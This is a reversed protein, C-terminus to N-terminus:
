QVQTNVNLEVEEEPLAKDRKLRKWSHYIFVNAVALMPPLVLSTMLAVLVQQSKDGLNSMLPSLSFSLLLLIVISSMFTMTFGTATTLLCTWYRGKTLAFSEHLLRNIKSWSGDFAIAPAPLLRPLLLFNAPVFVFLGATEISKSPINFGFIWSISLISLIIIILPAQIVIGLFIFALTMKPLKLTAALFARAIQRPLNEWANGTDELLSFSASAVFPFLLLAWIFSFCAAYLPANFFALLTVTELAALAITMCFLHLSKRLLTKLADLLIDKLM